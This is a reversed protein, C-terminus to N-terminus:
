EADRMYHQKEGRLRASTIQLADYYDLLEEKTNELTTRIVPSTVVGLADDIDRLLVEITRLVKEVRRRKTEDGM